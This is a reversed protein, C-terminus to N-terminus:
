AIDYSYLNGFKAQKKLDWNISKQIKTENLLCQLQKRHCDISERKM